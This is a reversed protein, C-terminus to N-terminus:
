AHGIVESTQGAFAALQRLATRMGREAARTLTAGFGFEGAPITVIWADPTRGFVQAALGLLWGPTGVHGLGTPEAEARIPRLCVPGDLEAAADVFVVQEVDAMKAALEPTLQHVALARVDPRNWATVIRALRPGVGDDGRLENGYGIILLHTM